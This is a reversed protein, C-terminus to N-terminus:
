KLTSSKALRENLGSVMINFFTYDFTGGLPRVIPYYYWAIHSRWRFILRTHSDDIPELLMVISIDMKRSPTTEGLKPDAKRICEVLLLNPEVRIVKQVGPGWDDLYDGVRVHQYATDIKSLAHSKFTNELWMPAYWGARSKGLQLVWPWVENIPENLVAARDITWNSNSIISDGPLPRKMDASTVDSRRSIYWAGFVLTPIIVMAPKFHFANKKPAKVIAQADANIIFATLFVGFLLSCRLLSFCPKLTIDTINFVIQCKGAM